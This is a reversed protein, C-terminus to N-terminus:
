LYSLKDVYHLINHIHFLLHPFLNGYIETTQFNKSTVQWSEILTKTLCSKFSKTNSLKQIMINGFRNRM